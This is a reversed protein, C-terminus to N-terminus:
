RNRAKVAIAKELEAMDKMGLMFWIREVEAMPMKYKRALTRMPDGKPVRM